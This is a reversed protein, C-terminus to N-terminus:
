DARPASGELYVKRGDTFTIDRGSARNRGDRSRYGDVLIETGVPLTNKNIGKRFLTNPTGGEIAWSAVSGDENTVDIHIWSHPNILEVETVTGQLQIPQNPDFEAAFSHHAHLPAAALVFAAAAVLIASIKRM